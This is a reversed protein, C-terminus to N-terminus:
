SLTHLLNRPYFMNEGYAITNCRYWPTTPIVRPLGRDDALKSNSRGVYPRFPLWYSSSKFDYCGHQQTNGPNNAYEEILCIKKLSWPDYLFIERHQSCCFFEQQIEHHWLLTIIGNHTKFFYYSHRSLSRKGTVKSTWCDSWNVYFLCKSNNM